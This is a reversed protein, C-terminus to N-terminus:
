YKNFLKRIIGPSHKNLSQFLDIKNNILPIQSGSWSESLPFLYLKKFDDCNKNLKLYELLYEIEWDPYVVAVINILVKCEEIDNIKAFLRDLLWDKKRTNLTEDTVNRFLLKAPEANFSWVIDGILQKYAYEINKEHNPIEWIRDVISYAYSNIDYNDKLRLGEIM